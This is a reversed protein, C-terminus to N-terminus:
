LNQFGIKGATAAIIPEALRDAVGITGDGHRQPEKDVRMWPENRHRIKWRQGSVRRPKLRQRRKLSDALRKDGPTISARGRWKASAIRSWNM